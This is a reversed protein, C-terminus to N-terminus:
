AEFALGRRAFVQEHTDGWSVARALTGYFDFLVGRVNSLPRCTDAM